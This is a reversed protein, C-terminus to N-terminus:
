HTQWFGGNCRMLHGTLDVAMGNGSCADGSTVTNEIWLPRQMKNTGDTLLTQRMLTISGPVPLAVTVAYGGTVSAYSGNAGFERTVMRAHSEEAVTTSLTLATGSVTLRYRGGEGNAGAQMDDASDVKLAPLYVTLDTFSGPWQSVNDARYAYLGEILTLYGEVTRRSENIEETTRWWQSAFAVVVFMAAVLLIGGFIQM